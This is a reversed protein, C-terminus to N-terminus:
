AEERVGVWVGRKGMEIGAVGDGRAAQEVFRRRRSSPRRM